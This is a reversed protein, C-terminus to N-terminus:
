CLVPRLRQNMHFQLGVARVPAQRFSAEAIGREPFRHFVPFASDAKGYLFGAQPPAVSLSLWVLIRNLYTQKVPLAPYGVAPLQIGSDAAHFEKRIFVPNGSSFLFSAEGQTQVASGYIHVAIVPHRRINHVAGYRLIGIRM